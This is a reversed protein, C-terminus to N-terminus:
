QLEELLNPPLLLAVPRQSIETLVASEKIRDELNNKDDVITYKIDLGRLVPETVKGLPVHFFSNEGFHGRYSILVLLPIDYLYNLTGFGNCSTLLGANQIILVPKKGTLYAGACIGVGEEERTAPVHIFDNDNEIDIILDNILSDPLTVAFDIGAKKLGKIIESM